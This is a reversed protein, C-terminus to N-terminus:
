QANLAGGLERRWKDLLQEQIEKSREEVHLKKFLDLQQAGTLTDGRIVHLHGAM